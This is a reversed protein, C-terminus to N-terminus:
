QAGHPADLERELEALAADINGIAALVRARHLHMAVGPYGSTSALQADQATCGEQLMELAADFAGRAVFVTAMLYHALALGPCLTLVRRAARLRQEGWSVYSLRMAHRWDNPDLDVAKLAAALAEHSDGNLCLVFARTSWADASAPALDCGKASHHLGSRLAELDPVIDARTSEFTYACANALDVHARACDPEARLVRELTRRARLIADRDLTDLDQEGDALARYPVLPVDTAVDAEYRHTREIGVAFRYGRNPVTEIYRAGGRSGLRKRLRSITQDVSNDAVAAGHWAAHALTEKSVVEGVHLVLKLLIEFQPDPLPIRAAGHFLRARQPDLEFPGFRYVSSGDPM